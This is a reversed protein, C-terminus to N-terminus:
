ECIFDGEKGEALLKQCFATFNRILDVLDEEQRLRLVIPREQELSEPGNTWLDIPQAPELPPNLAPHQLDNRITERLFIPPRKAYREQIDNHLRTIINKKSVLLLLNINFFCM